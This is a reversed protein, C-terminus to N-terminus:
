SQAAKTRYPNNSWAGGAQFSIGSACGEDWAEARVRELAADPDVIASRIDRVVAALTTADQRPSREPDGRHIADEIAWWEGGSGDCDACDTEMARGDPLRGYSNGSGGCSLCVVRGIAAAVAAVKAADSQEFARSEHASQQHHRQSEIDHATEYTSM